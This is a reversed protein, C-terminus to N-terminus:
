FVLNMIHIFTIIIIIIIPVYRLTYPKRRVADLCMRQKKFRNPVYALSVPEIDVAENCIEQTKLHDPIERIWIPVIELPSM